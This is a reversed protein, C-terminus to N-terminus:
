SLFTESVVDGEPDLFHEVDRVQERQWNHERFLAPRDDDCPEKHHM